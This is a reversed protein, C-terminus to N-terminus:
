FVELPLNEVKAIRRAERLSLWASLFTGKIVPSPLATDIYVPEYLDANTYYLPGVPNLETGDECKLFLGTAKFSPIHKRFANSM